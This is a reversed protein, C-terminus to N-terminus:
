YKDFWNIQNVDLLMSIEDEDPSCVMQNIASLFLKEKKSNTAIKWGMLM